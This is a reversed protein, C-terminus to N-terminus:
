LSAAPAGSMVDMDLCPLPFPCAEALEGRTNEKNDPFGFRGLSVRLRNQRRHSHNSSPWWSGREWKHFATDSDPTPNDQSASLRCSEDGLVLVWPWGLHTAALPHTTSPLPLSVQPCTNAEPSQETNLSSAPSQWPDTPHHSSWTLLFGPSVKLVPFM